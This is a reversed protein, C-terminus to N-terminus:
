DERGALMGLYAGVGILLALLLTSMTSSAPVSLPAPAPAVTFQTTLAPYSTQPDTSEPQQILTYTGAELQGLEFFVPVPPPPTAFCLIGPQRPRMQIRLNLTNGSRTVSSQGIEELERCFQFRSGAFLRTQATAPQPIVSLQDFAATQAYASHVFFSLCLAFWVVIRNM